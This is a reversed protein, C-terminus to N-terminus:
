EVLAIAVTAVDRDMRRSQKAALLLNTLESTLHM